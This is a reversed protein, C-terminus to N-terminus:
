LRNQELFEIFNFGANMMLNSKAEATATRERLLEIATTSFDSVRITYYDNATLEDKNEQNLRRIFKPDKSKLTLSAYLSVTKRIDSPSRIQGEESGYMFTNYLESFYRGFILHDSPYSAKETIESNESAKEQLRIGLLGECENSADFPDAAIAFGGNGANQNDRFTLDSLRQFSGSRRINDFARIPYNNLMGGDVYLGSYAKRSVEDGNIVQTNVFMPKFVPPLTMSLQVAEIVPFDPTHYVSFYKPVHKSINTGTVVLDVGTLNFFQRFTMTESTFGSIEYGNAELKGILYKDVLEAFYNRIKVGEFLGREGIFNSLFGETTFTNQFVQRSVGFPAGDNFYAELVKYLSPLVVRNLSDLQDILEFPQLKRIPAYMPFRLPLVPAYRLMQIILRVRDAKNIYTGSDPKMNNLVRKYKNNPAEDIFQEFVGIVKDYDSNEPLIETRDMEYQIDDSSMGLSLMFATIAGASSGSIGKLVRRDPPLNIQFLAPTSITQFGFEPNPIILIADGSQSNRIRNELREELIRIPELYLIGRGGGGELALYELNNLDFAM